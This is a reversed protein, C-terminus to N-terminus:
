EPPTFHKYSACAPFTFCETLLALREKLLALHLPPLDWVHREEPAFFKPTRLVIFM